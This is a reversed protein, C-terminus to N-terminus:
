LVNHHDQVVPSRNSVSLKLDGLVGSLDDETGYILMILYGNDRCSGHGPDEKFHKLLYKITKHYVSVHWM